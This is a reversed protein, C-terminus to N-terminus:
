DWKNVGDFFEFLYDDQYKVDNKRLIELYEDKFSKKSHHKELDNKWAKQILADHNKPSFVLHIYLQTYTNAM